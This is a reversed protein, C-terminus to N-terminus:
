DDAEARDHAIGLVRREHDEGDGDKDYEKVLKAEPETGFGGRPQFGLQAGSSPQMSVALMLSAGVVSLRRRTM